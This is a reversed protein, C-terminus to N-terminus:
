QSGPPRAKPSPGALPAAGTHIVVNDIVASDDGDAFTAFQFVQLQTAKNLFPAGPAIAEGNIIVDYTQKALDCRLVYHTWIDRKVVPPSLPWGKMMMQLQGQDAMVNFGCVLGGASDDGLGFQWASRKASKRLYVDAEVTIIKARNELKTSVGCAHKHGAVSSIELAQSGSRVLTTQIRAMDRLDIGQGSAFLSWKADQVALGSGTGFPGPKIPVEFGMNMLVPSQALGSKALLLTIAWVFWM